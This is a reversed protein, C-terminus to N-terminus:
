QSFLCVPNGCSVTHCRQCLLYLGNNILYLTRMRQGMIGYFLGFGGCVAVDDARIATHLTLFAGCKTNPALRPKLSKPNRIAHIRFKKHHCALVSTRGHFQWMTACADRKRLIWLLDVTGPQGVTFHIKNHCHHLGAIGLLIKCITHIRFYGEHTGSNWILFFFSIQRKEM